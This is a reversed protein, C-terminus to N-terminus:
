TIPFDFSIRTKAARCTSNSSNPHLTKLNHTTQRKSHTPRITLNSLNIAAEAAEPQAAAVDQIHLNSAMM